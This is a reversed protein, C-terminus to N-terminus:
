SKFSKRSNGLKCRRASRIQAAVEADTTTSSAKPADDFWTVSLQSNSLTM